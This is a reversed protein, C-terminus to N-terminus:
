GALGVGAGHGEEQHDGDDEDCIGEGIAAADALEDFSGAADVGATGGGDGNAAEEVGGKEADRGLSGDKVEYGM